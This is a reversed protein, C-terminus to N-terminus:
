AGALERVEKVFCTDGLGQVGYGNDLLELSELPRKNADLQWHVLLYLLRRCRIFLCLLLEDFRDRVPAEYDLPVLLRPDDLAVHLPRSLLPAAAILLVPMGLAAECLGILVHVREQRNLTLVAPAKM